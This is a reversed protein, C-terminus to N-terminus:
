FFFFNKGTTDFTSITELNDWEEVSDLDFIDNEDEINNDNFNCAM